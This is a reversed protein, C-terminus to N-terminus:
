DDFFNRNSPDYCTYVPCAGNRTPVFERKVSQGPLCAAASSVYRDYTYGGTGLVVGGYQALLNQVQGCSMGPTQPRMQAMAPSGSSILVLILGLRKM